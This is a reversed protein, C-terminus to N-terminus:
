IWVVAITLIISQKGVFAWGGGIEIGLSGVVM